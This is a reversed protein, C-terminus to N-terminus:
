PSAGGTGGFGIPARPATLFNNVVGRTEHSYSEFPRHQVGSTPKNLKLKDVQCRDVRPTRSTAGPDDWYELHAGFETSYM